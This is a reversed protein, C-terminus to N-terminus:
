YGIAVLEKGVASLGEPWGLAAAAVLLLREPPGESKLDFIEAGLPTWDPSSGRRLLAFCPSALRLLAFCPSALCKRSQKTPQPFPRQTLPSRGRDSM